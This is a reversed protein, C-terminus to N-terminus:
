PDVEKFEIKKGCWVCYEWDGSVFDVSMYHATKGSCGAHYDNGDGVHTWHCTPLVRHGERTPPIEVRLFVCDDEPCSLEIKKISEAWVGGAQVMLADIDKDEMEHKRIFDIVESCKM